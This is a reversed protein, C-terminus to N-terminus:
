GEDGVEDAPGVADQKPGGSASRELNLELLAALIEDDSLAPNWGYADFVAEDVARHALELWTPRENYLNTLTRKALDSVYADKPVLRRYRVTGIGWEDPDQVFHPYPL